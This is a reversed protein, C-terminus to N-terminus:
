EPIWMGIVLGIVEFPKTIIPYQPNISQLYRQGDADGYQKFTPIKQGNEGDILAIVRDGNKAEKAREPDVFIICDEPYSRGYQSTMTNDKVRTAYTMKSHPAPCAILISSTSNEMEAVEDMQFFLVDNTTKDEEMALIWEARQAANPSKLKLEGVGHSLWGPNIGLIEAM